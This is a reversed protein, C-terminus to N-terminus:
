LWAVLMDISIRILIERGRSFVLISWKGSGCIKVMHHNLMICMKRFWRHYRGEEKLLAKSSFNRPM